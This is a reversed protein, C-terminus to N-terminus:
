AKERQEVAKNLKLKKILSKYKRNQVKKVVTLSILNAIIGIIWVSNWSFLFGCIIIMAIVLLWYIVQFRFNSKNLQKIVDIRDSKHPANEIFEAAGAAGSCLRFDESCEEAAKKYSSNNLIEFVSSRIGQASDDCLETGANIEVVRRAVAKQEATQPYLVVPTAMYLSESVSNMGCHSIFVDAKSLVELQNVYPFMKINEPLIGFSEIDTTKGCSIIVDVDLNGLADICKEYFDPRDNIVTGLSVYALPREKKKNPTTESLVSPGVFAYHESFSEAYPQFKHSTYVVSDTDNDSQVLSLASKVHYGYPRLSKLEKSIKPLGLIMDSLEKMSHKMYQSSMQNFAFTSTSVVMPVNHKWANLKGWFCVSDTFVVDPKYMKFENDLFTDMRLTTYIGQSTMETTSVDKLRKIERDSLECSGEDCSIFEAGTQEIKERFEDFSYFRVINGRKVLEEAVPLMPNTHGHAPISFFFVMSM